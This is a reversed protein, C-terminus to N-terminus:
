RQISERIAVLLANEGIENLHVGDSAHYPELPSFYPNTDIRTAGSHTCIQEICHNYPALLSNLRKNPGPQLEENVQPLTIVSTREAGLASLIGLLNTEFEEIPVVKWPACDNMGFCLIFRDAPLNAIFAARRLGDSTNFGGTACNHVTANTIASELQNLHGKKLRAFLSDGFLVINM